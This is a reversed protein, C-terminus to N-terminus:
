VLRVIMGVGKSVRNMDSDERRSLPCANLTERNLMEKMFPLRISEQSGNEVLIANIIAQIVSLRYIKEDSVVVIPLFM